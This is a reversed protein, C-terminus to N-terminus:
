TPVATYDDNRPSLKTTRRKSAFGAAAHIEGATEGPERYVSRQISILPRMVFSMLDPTRSSSTAHPGHMPIPNAGGVFPGDTRVNLRLKSPRLPVASSRM